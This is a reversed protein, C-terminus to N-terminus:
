KNNFQFEGCYIDVNHKELVNSNFLIQDDLLMTIHHLVEYLVDIVDSLMLKVAKM